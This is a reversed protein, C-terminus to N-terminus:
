VVTHGKKTPQQHLTRYWAVTHELGSPLDYDPNFGLEKRAKSIDVRWNRATVERMKFHSLHVPRGLLKMTHFAVFGVGILVQSPIRVTVTKVGLQEKILGNFRAQGYAQGDSIVYSTRAHSASCAQAVLRSLDQVHIFSLAQDPPGLRVEIGRELLRIMRLVFKEDRPGYVAAPRITVYPLDAIQELYAEAMLKSRGYPTIPAPDVDEHIIEERRVDAPGLAAISGMFLFKRLLPQTDRAALGFARTFEANGTIFERPDRPKTVGANHIIYDFGGETRAFDHLDRHLQDPKNLDVYFFRIRPDRLHRQSSTKRIGAYVTWNRRLAEDVLHSGIFGSAGTILVKYARDDTM